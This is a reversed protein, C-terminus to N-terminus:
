AVRPARVGDHLAFSMSVVAVGATTLLVLAMQVFRSRASPARRLVDLDVGGLRALFDSV